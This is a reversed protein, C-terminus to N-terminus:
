KKPWFLTYRLLLKSPCSLLRMHSFINFIFWFSYVFMDRFWTRYSRWSVFPPFFSCVVCTIWFLNVLVLNRVHSSCVSFESYQMVLFKMDNHKILITFPFYLLIPIYDTYTQIHKYLKIPSLNQSATVCLLNLSLMLLSKIFIGLYIM